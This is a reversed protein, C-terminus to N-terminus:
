ALAVTQAADTLVIGSERMSKMVRTWETSSWKRSATKQRLERMSMAGGSKLVAVIRREIQSDVSLRWEGTLSRLARWSWEAMAIGADLHERRIIPDNAEDTIAYLMALKRAHVPYRARLDGHDNDGSEDSTKSESYVSNYYDRWVATCDHHLPLVVGREGALEDLTRCVRLWLTAAAVRDIGPPEPMPSKGSGPVILWRNAFGSSVLLDDFSSALRAPQTAAVISLFPRDAVVPSTKANNELVAPCDFAEILVDVMNESGKRRAKGLTNTLESLVALRHSEDRLSVILGEASSIDRLLGFRPRQLANPTSAIEPLALARRIATDKRSSGTAGVVLTYLNPYLTIGAYTHSFRRGAQAGCLTLFAAAHFQDAAETTPAALAVYEGVAGYLAAAPLPEYPGTAAVPAAPEVEVADGGDAAADPRSGVTITPSTARRAPELAADIYALTSESMVSRLRSWGATVSGSRVHQYTTEVARERDRAEDGDDAALASIIRRAQSEPVGSKALMGSLGLAIAHRTGDRWDRGVADVIARETTESLTRGAEPVAVREVPPADEAVGSLHRLEAFSYSGGDNHVSRSPRPRDARKLNVTGPIRMIRTGADLAQVDVMEYGAHDNVLKGIHRHIERLRSVRHQDDPAVNLHVAVGYGTLDIRNPVFGLARFAEVVRARLDDALDDVQDDPMAHIDAKALGTFSTLDCDFPLSLIAVLNDATRGGAASISGARFTGSAVYTDTEDVPLSAAEILSMHVPRGNRFQVVCIEGDVENYPDGLNSLAQAIRM